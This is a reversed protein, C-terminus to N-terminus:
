RKISTTDNINPAKDLQKNILDCNKGKRGLDIERLLSGIIPNQAHFTAVDKFFLALFKRNEM